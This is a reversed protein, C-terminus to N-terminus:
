ELEEEDFAADDFGADEDEGLAALVAALPSDDGVVPDATWGVYEGRAKEVKSELMWSVRLISEPDLASKQVGSVVFPKGETTKIGELGLKEMFREIAEAGKAIPTEVHHELAHVAAPDAELALLGDILKQDEIGRWERPGPLLQQYGDWKPDPRSIFLMEMGISARIRDELGRPRAPFYSLLDRNGLGTRRGVYVGDRAKIAERIRNEVADLRAREEATPMGNEEKGMMPIRVGFFWPHTPVPFDEGYGLDLAVDFPAGEVTVRWIEYMPTYAM